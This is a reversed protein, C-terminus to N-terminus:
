DSRDWRPAAAVLSSFLNVVFRVFTVYFFSCESDSDLRLPRLSSTPAVPQDGQETAKLCLFEL